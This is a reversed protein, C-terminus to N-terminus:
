KFGIISDGEKLDKLKKEIINNNEDLIFFPHNESCTIKDCGDLEIEFMEAYGSDIYIAEDEELEKTEQNCSIVKINKENKLNEIKMNKYDGNIKVKVEQEGILCLYDAEDIFVIKHKDKGFPPLKLFPVITNEVFSIGRSSQASGNLELLNDDPNKLVGYPSSLILSITTKGGGPPGYLCLNPIEGNNVYREFDESHGESFVVDKITKPRYKEVWLSEVLSM